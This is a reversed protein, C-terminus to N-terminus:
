EPKFIFQRLLAKLTDYDIDITICKLFDNQKLVCFRINTKDVNHEDPEIYVINDINVLINKGESPLEIFKSM